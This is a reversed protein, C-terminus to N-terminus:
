YTSTSVYVIYVEENTMDILVHQRSHEEKGSCEELHQAKNPTWWDPDNEVQEHSSPVSKSLPQNCITNDIFESLESPQMSFRVMIFIDRMGTTYAYIEHASPPFKIDANGEIASLEPMDTPIPQYSHADFSEVPVYETHGAGCSVTFL